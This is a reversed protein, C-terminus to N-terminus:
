GLNIGDNLALHHMLAERVTMQPRWGESQRTALLAHLPGLDPEKDGQVVAEVRVPPRHPEALVDVSFTGGQGATWRRQLLGAERILEESSWRRRGSLVVKSSPVAGSALLLLAEILDHESVWWGDRVKHGLELAPWLEKTLTPVLDQVAVSLLCGEREITLHHEGDPGSLLAEAHDSEVISSAGLPDRDAIMERVVPTLGSVPRGKRAALLVVSAAFRPHLGQVDVAQM